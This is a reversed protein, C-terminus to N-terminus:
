EDLLGAESGFDYTPSLLRSSHVTSYSTTAAPPTRDDYKRETRKAPAPTPANPDVATSNSSTRRVCVEATSGFVVEDDHRDAHAAASEETEAIPDHYFLQCLCLFSCASAGTLEPDFLMRQVRVSRQPRVEDAALLGEDDENINSSPSLFRASSTHSAKSAHTPPTAQAQPPPSIFRGSSSPAVGSPSLSSRNSHIPRAASMHPRASAPTSGHSHSQDAPSFVLKKPFQPSTGDESGHQSLPSLVSEGAAYKEEEPTRHHQLLAAAM